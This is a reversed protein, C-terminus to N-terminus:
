VIEITGNKEVLDFLVIHEFAGDIARNPSHLSLKFGGEKTPFIMAHGGDCDFGTRLDKAYLLEKRHTWKGDIKGNSSRSVGVAYGNEDFNSWIMELNDGTKYIYPGDTVGRIAWEPENAFFLEVPESIFHSFDESLKAAAMSGNKDPMTVWEHVFIMWPQGDDDVYLTGDIADWDEPSIRGNAIDTFPGLPNDARYVSIVHRQYKKSFVSTFIYFNGKYFHCEPAWFLDSIGDFEAPPCFVVQPESWMELDQSVMCKIKNDDTKYLYYHNDYLMIFPDRCPIKDSLKFVNTNEPILCKGTINTINQNSILM